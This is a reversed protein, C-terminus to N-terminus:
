PSEKCVQGHVCSSLAHCLGSTKLAEGGCKGTLRLMERQEKALPHELAWPRTKSYILAQHEARLYTPTSCRHM